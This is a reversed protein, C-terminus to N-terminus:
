GDSGAKELALIRSSDRVVVSVFLSRGDSSVDFGYGAAPYELEFVDIIHDDAFRYFKLDQGGVPVWYLGESTADWNLLGGPAADIALRRPEADGRALFIGQQGRDFLLLDPAPAMSKQGREDVMRRSEPRWLEQEWLTGPQGAPVFFRLALGDPRWSPLMEREPTETVWEVHDGGGGEGPRVVVLDRQGDRLVSLAILQGDPSWRPHSSPLVGDVALRRPRGGDSLWLEIGGSRDSLFILRQGDPSLHLSVDARDSALISEFAPAEVPSVGPELGEFRLIDVDFESQEFVLTGAAATVEGLDLSGATPAFLAPQADKGFAAVEYVASSRGPKRSTFLLDQGDGSWDLSGLTGSIQTVVREDGSDLSLLRLEGNYPTTWRSFALWRGDPSVAPLRDWTRETPTEFLPEFPSESASNESSPENGLPLRHLRHGVELDPWWTVFLAEGDADWAVEPVTASRLSAVTKAAGGSAPMVRISLEELETSGSVFAIRRGDPSFRAGVESVEETASLQIPTANPDQLDFRYLDSRAGVQEAWSFLLYRGTPDLEIEAERGPLGTVPRAMLVERDASGGGQGIFRALGLVAVLVMAAILWPALSRPSTGTASSGAPPETSAEGGAEVLGGPQAKEASAEPEIPAPLMTLRYGAGPVTEILRPEQATEGLSRRLQWILNKAAGDTIAQDGWVLRRVQESSMPREGGDCLALLLTMEKQQLRVQEDGDVLRLEAPVVRWRDLTFPARDAFNSPSDPGSAESENPDPDPPRPEPSEM